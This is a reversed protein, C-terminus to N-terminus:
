NHADSLFRPTKQFVDPFLSRIIERTFPEFQYSACFLAACIQYGSGRIDRKNPLSDSRASIFLTDDSGYVLISSGWHWLPALLVYPYRIPGEVTAVKDHLMSILSLYRERLENPHLAHLNDITSTNLRLIKPALRNRAFKEKM